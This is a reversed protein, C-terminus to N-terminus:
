ITFVYSIVSCYLLKNRVLEAEYKPDKLKEEFEQLEKINDIPEFAIKSNKSSGPMVLPISDIKQVVYDMQKQMNRQQNAVETVVALISALLHNSNDSFSETHHTVFEQEVSTEGMQVLRGDDTIVYTGVGMENSQTNHLLQQPPQIIQNYQAPSPSPNTVMQRVSEPQNQVGVSKIQSQLAQSSAGVNSVNSRKQQVLKPKQQHKVPIKQQHSQRDNKPERRDIIIKAQDVTGVEANKPELNGM